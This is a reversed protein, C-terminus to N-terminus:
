GNRFWNNKKKAFLEKLLFFIRHEYIEKKKTIKICLYLYTNNNISNIFFFAKSSLQILFLEEMIGCFM